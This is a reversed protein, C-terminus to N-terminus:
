LSSKYYCTNGTTITLLSSGILKTSSGNEHLCSINMSVTKTSVSVTLQSVYTDNEARIIGSIAGNNCVQPGSRSQFLVIENSSTSCHLATGRWVVAGSGSIRCEYVQDYGECTCNSGNVVM